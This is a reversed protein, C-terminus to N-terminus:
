SQYSWFHPFCVPVGKGHPWCPRLPGWACPLPRQGLLGPQPNPDQLSSWVEGLFHSRQAKEPAFRINKKFESM